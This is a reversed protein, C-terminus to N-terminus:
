EDNLLDKARRIKADLEEDTLNDFKGVDKNVNEVREVYGRHKGKTKLYFITEATKGAKINKLLSTEAMDILAENIDDVSEKFSKFGNYWRNYTMRSIGAKECALSINGASAKLCKLFFIKNKAM